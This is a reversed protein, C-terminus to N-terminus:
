YFVVPFDTYFHRKPVFFKLSFDFNTELLFSPRSHVMFPNPFVNPFFDSKFLCFFLLFDFNFQRMHVFVVVLFAFKQEFM